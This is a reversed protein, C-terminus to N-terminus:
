RCTNQKVMPLFAPWRIMVTSVIMRPISRADQSRARATNRVVQSSRRNAIEHSGAYGLAHGHLQRAMSCSRHELAVVDHARAIEALRRLSEVGVRRRGTLSANQNRCRAGRDSRMSKTTM